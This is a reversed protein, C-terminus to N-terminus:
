GDAHHQELVMIVTTKIDVWINEWVMMEGAALIMKWGKEDVKVMMNM